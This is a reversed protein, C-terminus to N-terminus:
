IKSHRGPSPGFKKRTHMIRNRILKRLRNALEVPDNRDFYDAGFPPQLIEISTDTILESM